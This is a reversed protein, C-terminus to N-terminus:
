VYDCEYTDGTQPIYGTLATITTATRTYGVGEKMRGVNLYLAFWATPSASITFTPNTGNKTGALTEHTPAIGSVGLGASTSVSSVQTNVTNVM